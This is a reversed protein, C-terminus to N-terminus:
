DAHEDAGDRVAEGGNRRHPHQCIWVKSAIPAKQAEEIGRKPSRDLVPPQPSADSRDSTWSKLQATEQRTRRRAALTM